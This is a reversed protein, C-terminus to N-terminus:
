VLEIPMRESHELFLGRIGPCRGLGIRRWSGVNELDPVVVLFYKWSPYTFGFKRELDDEREYKQPRIDWNAVFLGRCITGSPYVADSDDLFVDVKCATNDSITVGSEDQLLQLTEFDAEVTLSAHVVEGMPNNEDKLTVDCGIFKIDRHPSYRPSSRSNTIGVYLVPLCSSAWSWSPGSIESKAHRSQSQTRDIYWLLGDRLDEQWLGAMYSYGTNARFISALGSLAPLKDTPKTLYCRTYEVVIIHWDSPPSLPMSPSEGRPLILCNKVDPCEYSTYSYESPRYPKIRSSGERTTCALCEWFIEEKSYFLIRPSLLREQLAWARHCLASRQFVAHKSGLAPSELEAVVVDKGSARTRRSLISQNCDTADLVFLTLYAYRYVNGMKSAERAWDEESDQIICLSDIWLYKIGLKRTIFVADQFMDPLSYFPIERLRDELTAITTILPQANGWCHSLTVYPEAIGNCLHLRPALGSVDIVRTPSFKQEGQYCHHDQICLNLWGYILKFTAESSPNEQLARPQLGYVFQYYDSVKLEDLYGSATTTNDVFWLLLHPIRAMQLEVQNTLDPPKAQDQLAIGLQYDVAQCLWCGKAASSRLRKYTAHHKPKGRARYKLAKCRWCLKLGIVPRKYGRILSQEFDPSLYNLLSQICNM